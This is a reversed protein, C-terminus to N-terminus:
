AAVPLPTSTSAADPGAPSSAEVSGVGAMEIDGGANSKESGVASSDKNEKSGDSGSPPADSGTSDSTGNALKKPARWSNIEWVVGTFSKLKFGKKEWKRVKFAGTRDLARL